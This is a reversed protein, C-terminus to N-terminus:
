AVTEYGRSLENKEVWIETRSGARDYLQRWVDLFREIDAETTLSGLSVRIACKAIDEPINMAKLVHSLGVKGSSCASGSSVAIRHLDFHILQTENGVGPMMIYSTNPLREEAVGFIVANPAYQRIKEELMDRLGSIDAMSRLNDTISAAAIGMGAIGPLNHTGARNGLEQGGGKIQAELQICRSIILAGVGQPGGFKHASVTMMDAGLAAMDVPIKGVAQSADTHVVGDYRHVLEVIKRVPQIIGTENNALMVSVLVPKDQEVLWGELADLDIVGAPTVPLLVTDERVQLLSMHEIASIAVIYSALGKAALNNAETGSGTFIIRAHQAGVATAVQQRAKELIASAERGYCHVSSANYPKAMVATMYAIVDPKVATTANYDLYVDDKVSETVESSGINKKQCIDNLTISQLYGLIQNGLGEWLDHTACRSQGQMCGPNDPLYRTIIISEDVALIVDAVTIQEPSKALLYGGGPGRCSCVLKGKKLRSFIQELYNLAIQQRCAIEALAVPQRDDPKQKRYKETLDVMAMVAYRGRTTLMM